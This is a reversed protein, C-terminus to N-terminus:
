RGGDGAASGCLAPFYERVPGNRLKDEIIRAYKSYYYTFVGVSLTGVLLFAILFASGWPSGVFRVLLARRPSSPKAAM